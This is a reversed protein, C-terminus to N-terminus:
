RGGGLFFLGLLGRQKAECICEGVEAMFGMRRGHAEWAGIDYGWLCVFCKWPGMIGQVFESGAGEDLRV